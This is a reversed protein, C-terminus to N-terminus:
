SVFHDRYDIWMLIISYIWALPELILLEQPTPFSLIEAQFAQRDIKSGSRWRRQNYYNIDHYAEAFNQGTTPQPETPTQARAPTRRRNLSKRQYFLARPPQNRKLNDTSAIRSGIIDTTPPYPLPQSIIITLPLLWTWCM